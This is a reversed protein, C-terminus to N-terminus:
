TNENKGRVLFTYLNEVDINDALALSIIQLKAHAEIAWAILADQDTVERYNWDGVMLGPLLEYTM